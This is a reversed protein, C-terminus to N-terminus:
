CPTIWWIWSKLSLTEKVEAQTKGLVNKIIQKGTDPNYGATYRGEWRGDSRKRIHSYATKENPWGGYRRHHGATCSVPQEKTDGVDSKPDTVVYNTNAELINPKM